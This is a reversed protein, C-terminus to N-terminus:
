EFYSIKVTTFMKNDKRQCFAGTIEVIEVILILNQNWSDISHYQTTEKQPATPSTPKREAQLISKTTPKEEKQNEQLRETLNLHDDDILIDQSRLMSEESQKDAFSKEQVTYFSTDSKENVESPIYAKRGARIEFSSNDEKVEDKRNNQEPSDAEWWRRVSPGKNHGLDLLSTSSDKPETVLIYFSKLALSLQM